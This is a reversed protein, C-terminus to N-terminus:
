GSEAVAWFWDFSADIPYAWLDGMEQRIRRTRRSPPGGQMDFAYRRLRSPFRWWLPTGVPGSTVPWMERCVRAAAQLKPHSQARRVLEALTLPHMYGNGSMTLAMWGIMYREDSRLSFSQIPEISFSWSGLHLNGNGGHGETSNMYQRLEERMTGLDIVARYIPRDHRSLEALTDDLCRSEFYIHWEIDQVGFM